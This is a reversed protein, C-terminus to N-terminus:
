VSISVNSSTEAEAITIAESAAAAFQTSVFSVAGGVLSTMEEITLEEM